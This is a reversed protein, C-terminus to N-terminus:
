WLSFIIIIRMNQKMIFVRCVRLAMKMLALVWALFRVASGFSLLPYGLPIDGSGNTGQYTLADLTVSGGDAPQVLTFYVVSSGEPVDFEAGHLAGNYLITSTHMM